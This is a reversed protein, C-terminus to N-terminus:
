QVMASIPALAIGQAPLRKIWLEIRDLTVPLPSAVGIARGSLRATQELQELAEDIAEPSLSSDIQRTSSASPVQLQGSVDRIVSHPAIRTDFVMLGRQKLVELVPKMKGMDAIFRSGSSTTVGVYGTGKRLASYLRQVNDEDPLNTLMTNPGPDSRSYDFPEMPISLLIEHGNQRARGLWAGVVPSQVDFALTVNAPLKQLVSDTVVNSLGLDTIVIAVRPRPDNQNFPRGYIQWVKRGDRGIKPLIGKATNETLETDPVKAMRANKDDKDNAAIAAQALSSNVDFSIDAKKVPREVNDEGVHQVKEVTVAATGSADKGQKTKGVFFWPMVILAVIVFTVALKLKRPYHALFTEKREPSVGVSSDNKTQSM